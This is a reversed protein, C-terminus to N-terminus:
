VAVLKLLEEVHVLLTNEERRAKLEIKDGTKESILARWPAGILDADALMEGASVGARDDYLVDVKAEGLQQYLRDARERVAAADAKLALLHVTAPAVVAPWMIGRDDHYKEVLVGMLRSTGIGYSAMIIPQLNGSADRFRYDFAESFKTGLPFTNGVESVTFSDGAERVEPPAVEANYYTDNKEDYYVTDEGAKLRVNFEHSFDRTFDGGSALAVVTDEGLGVRKFITLYVAKVQDYFRQLDEPTAHFSYLDKMRFERGRLLGSKPREENRFKTQIQYVAFPLDKYSPKFRQAIPTIV